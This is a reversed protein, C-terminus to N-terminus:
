PSSAINIEEYLHQHMDQHDYCSAGHLGIAIYKGETVVAIRHGEPIVHCKCMLWVTGVLDKSLYYERHHQQLWAQIADHESETYRVAQVTLRSRYQKIEM